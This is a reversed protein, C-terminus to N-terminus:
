SITQHRSTITEHIRKGTLLSQGAETIEIKPMLNVFGLSKPARTIRDRAALAKDSPMARGKYSESGFLENFFSIQTSTEWKKGSFKDSLLWIEPIIKEITRPSTFAFLTKTKNLNAM